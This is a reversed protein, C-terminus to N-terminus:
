ARAAATAYARAAAALQDGTADALQQRQGEIIKGFTVAMEAGSPAEGAADRPAAIAEAM